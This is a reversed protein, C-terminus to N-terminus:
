GSSLGVQGLEFESDIIGPLFFSQVSTSRRLEFSTESIGRFSVIQRSYFRKELLSTTSDNCPSSKTNKYAHFGHFGVQDPLGAVALAQYALIARVVSTQLRYWRGGCVSQTLTNRDPGGDGPAPSPGNDPSKQRVLRPITRPAVPSCREGNDAGTDTPEATLPDWPNGYCSAATTPVQLSTTVSGQTEILRALRELRATVDASVYENALDRMQVDCQSGNPTLGSRKM